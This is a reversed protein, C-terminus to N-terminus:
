EPEPVFEPRRVQRETPPRVAASGSLATPPHRPRYQERGKPHSHSHVPRMTATRGEDPKKRESAGSEHHPSARGPLSRRENVPKERSEQAWGSVPGRFSRHSTGGQSQPRSQHRLRDHSKQVSQPMQPPPLLSDLSPQPPQTMTRCSNLVSEIQTGVYSSIEPVSLCAEAEGVIICMNPMEFVNIHSHITYMTVTEDYVDDLLIPPACITPFTLTEIYVTSEDSHIVHIPHRMEVSWRTDWPLEPRFIGICDGWKYVRQTVSIPKSVGAISSIHPVKGSISIRIM